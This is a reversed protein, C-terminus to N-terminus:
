SEKALKWRVIQEVSSLAKGYWEGQNEQFGWLPGPRVERRSSVCISPRYAYQASPSDGRDSPECLDIESEYHSLRLPGRSNEPSRCRNSYSERPCMPSRSLGSYSKTPKKQSRPERSRSRCRFPYDSTAPYRSTHLPHAVHTSVDAQFQRLEIVVERSILKLTLVQGVTRAMTVVDETIVVLLDTATAIISM